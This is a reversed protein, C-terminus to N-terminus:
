EDDMGMSQNKIHQDLVKMHAQALKATHGMRETHHKVTETAHKLHETGRNIHAKEIETASKIRTSLLSAHSKQVAADADLGALQANIMLELRANETKQEDVAIQQQKLQSDARMGEEKVKLEAMAFEQQKQEAIEMPSPPPPPIDKPDKGEMIAQLQPPATAKLRNQIEVANELGIMKPVLDIISQPSQPSVQALMSIFDKFTNIKELQQQDYSGAVTVEVDYEGASMDNEIIEKTPDGMQNYEFNGTPKNIPVSKMAGDAERVQIVQEDDYIFKMLELQVKGMQKIGREWNDIYVNVANNAAQQRKGIAVGAIANSEMGQTEDPRGLVQKLQTISQQMAGLLGEHFPQPSIFEPKGASGQALPDPTYTLFGQVMQPNKWEKEVGQFMKKTGIIQERRSNLVSLAVESGYYNVLKQPDIGDQVFSLPLRDGRLVTSDGEFYVIPLLKGPWTETELIENQVWRYKILDFDLESRTEIIELPEPIEDYPMPFSESQILGKKVAKKIDTEMRENGAITIAILEEREAILEKAQKATCETGDSLKCLQVNYYRKKWTNCGIVVDREEYATYLNNTVSIPNPCKEEYMRDFDERGMVWHNGCFDGDSRDPQQAAADWYCSQYDVCPIIELYKKFTGKKYCIDVQGAGWGIEVAQKLATQYVMPGDCEYSIRRLLGTRLEASDNNQDEGVGVVKNEPSNKRAEGLIARIIPVLFNYTMTPKQLQSRRGRVDSDWQDIYLFTMINYARDLMDTAFSYWSQQDKILTQLMESDDPKPDLYSKRDPKDDKVERQLQNESTM